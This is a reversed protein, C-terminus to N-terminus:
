SVDKDVATVTKEFVISNSETHVLVLSVEDRPSLTLDSKAIRFSLSKGAAWRQEDGRIVGSIGGCGEDYIEDGEYNRAEINNCGSNQVPFNVLRTDEPHDDFTIKIEMNRMEVPNGSTHTVEVVQDDPGCGTCGAVIEDVSFQASPAKEPSDDAIGTTFVFVVSALVVVVAVMLIVGIVPSVARRNRRSLTDNHDTM